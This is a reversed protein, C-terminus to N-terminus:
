AGDQTKGLRRYAKVNTICTYTKFIGAGVLTLEILFILFNIPFDIFYISKYIVGILIYPFNISITPFYNPTDLRHAGSRPMGPLPRKKERLLRCRKM